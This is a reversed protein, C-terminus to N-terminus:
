AVPPGPEKVGNTYTIWTEAHGNVVINEVDPRGLYPQLVGLGYRHDHVAQTLRRQSAASLLPRGSGVQEHAWERVHHAILHQAEARDLDDRLVDVLGHSIERVAARQAASDLEM